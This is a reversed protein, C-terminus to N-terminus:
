TGPRLSSLENRWKENNGERGVGWTGCLAFSRPDQRQSTDQAVELIESSAQELGHHVIFMTCAVMATHLGTILRLYQPRCFGHDLGPRGVARLWSVLM